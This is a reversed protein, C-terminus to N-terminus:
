PGFEGRTIHDDIIAKVREALLPLTVTGTNFTTRTATGSAASWGPEPALDDALQNFAEALHQHYTATLRVDPLGAGLSGFINAIERITDITTM